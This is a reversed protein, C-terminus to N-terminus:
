NWFGKQITDIMSKHNKYQKFLKRQDDSSTGNKIINKICQMYKSTGLKLSSKNIKNLIHDFYENISMMKNQDHNIFQASLGYRAAQWKNNEIINLDCNKHSNVNESIDKVLTQILAIIAIIHNFKSPMDCIRIEITNYIQHPRVDWWIERIDSIIKNSTFLTILQEFQQWDKFSVPIGSRPLVEFLKTRYSSFGTDENNYFPSSSTLALLFPLYQRILNHVHITTKTDPMGIHVHLGQSILRRGVIQLDSMIHHYRENDSINRQEISAFPHLSASYAICNEEKVVEELLKCYFTLNDEVEFINQCIDTTVELMSQIFEPKFNHQNKGKIRKIIEPAKPTLDFTSPNLLQFELEVGISYATSCM